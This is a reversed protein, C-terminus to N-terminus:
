LRDAQHVRRRARHRLDAEVDQRVGRERLYRDALSCFELPAVPCKIPMDVMNVVPRGITQYRSHLVCSYYCV